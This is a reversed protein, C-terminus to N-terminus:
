TTQENWMYISLHSFCEMLVPRLKWVISPLEYLTAFLGIRTFLSLTKNFDDNYHLLYCNKILDIYM